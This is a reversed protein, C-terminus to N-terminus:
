GQLKREAEMEEEPDAGPSFSTNWYRSNDGLILELERHFKSCRNTRLPAEPNREEITGTIWFHHYSAIFTSEQGIRDLRGIRQEVEM